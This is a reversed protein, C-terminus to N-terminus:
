GFAVAPELVDFLCDTKKYEWETKEENISKIKEKLSENENKLLEMDKKLDGMQSFLKRRVKGMSEIADDIQKQMAALKVDSDSKNDFNLELQMSIDLPSFDTLGDSFFCTFLFRTM